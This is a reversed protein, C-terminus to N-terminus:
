CGCLLLSCSCTFTPNLTCVRAHLSRKYPVLTDIDISAFVTKEKRKSGALRRQFETWNADSEIAPAKDKGGSLKM